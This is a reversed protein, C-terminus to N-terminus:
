IEETPEAESKIAVRGRRNRNGGPFRTRHKGIRRHMWLVANVTVPERREQPPIARVRERILVKPLAEMQQPSFQRRQRRAQEDQVTM